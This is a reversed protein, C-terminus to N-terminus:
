PLDVIIVDFLLKDKDEQDRYFETLWTLSNEDVIEVRPDDRYETRLVDDLQVTHNPDMRLLVVQQVTNHKLVQRLIASSGQTTPTAAGWLIAVRQPNEHTFM